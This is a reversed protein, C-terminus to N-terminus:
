RNLPDVPVIIEGCFDDPKIHAGVYPAMLANIRIPGTPILHRREIENWIKKCLLPLVSYDGFSIMTFARTAPFVRLHPDADVPDSVPICFTMNYKEQLPLNVNWDDNRIVFLPETVQIHLGDKICQGYTDYAAAELGDSSTPELYVCYCTLSPFDTFSTTFNKSHDVRLELENLLRNLRALKARQTQYFAIPDVRQYYVDSIENRSLGLNQLLLYQGISTINDADYYRYGTQSDIRFPKLFGCEEMRILTTRSVGCTKAVERITFLKREEPYKM